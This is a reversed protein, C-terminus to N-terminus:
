IAPIILPHGATEVITLPLNFTASLLEADLVEHSSGTTLQHNENILWINQSYNFAQTLDHLIMLVTFQRKKQLTTLANLFIQQYKLDLYTTPEDLLLLEPQQHLVYGLWVLQRQGGSLVDIPRDLLDTLQLLELVEEDLDNSQITLLERVTLPEFLENKQALLAIKNPIDTITGSQPQISQTILNFLTSKGIGNPGILCTIEHDHLTANMDEFIVKDGVQYNIHELKLM